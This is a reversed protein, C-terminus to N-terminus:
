QGLQVVLVASIHVVQLGHRILCVSKADCVKGAIDVVIHTTSHLEHYEIKIERERNEKEERGGERREERGGERKGGRLGRPEQFFITVCEASVEKVEEM